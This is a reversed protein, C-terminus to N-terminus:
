MHIRLFNLAHAATLEINRKRDFRFQFHTTITKEKTSVAVCVYGVPKEDSGGSPGMIGSTALAIDSGTRERVGEAMKQVTEASVAGHRTITEEPVGLLGTKLANDYSVIGGLFFSSSGPIATILHAIYGGTCSEAIALKKGTKKLGESIVEQLTIDRDVVLHDKVVEKLIAFQADMVGSDPDTGTWTLRIRVMGYNPLFAIKIQTPLQREFDVLM